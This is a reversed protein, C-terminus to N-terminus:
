NDKFVQVAAAMEGIEDKRDLGLVSVSHDNTALVTMTTTLSGLPRTISRAIFFAAGVMIVLVLSGGIALVMCVFDYHEQASRKIERATERHQELLKEAGKKVENFLPLVRATLDIGAQDYDNALIKRALPRLGDDILKVKAAEVQSANDNFHSSADSQRYDRLSENMVTIAKEMGDTHLSVPHDHRKSAPLVPNHQVALLLQRFAEQMAENLQPIQQIPRLADSETRLLMRQTSLTSVVGIVGVVVLGIVSVVILATVRGGIKLHPLM